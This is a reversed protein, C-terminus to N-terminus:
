RPKLLLITWPLPQRSDIVEFWPSVQQKLGRSSWHNIHGPTNGFDRLYKGRAMNLARWIPERPTSILVNQRAVRALETLAAAPDDLHELVEMMVLIDISKDPFGLNYASRAEIVIGPNRRQAKDVLSHTVDSGSFDIGLPIWDRMRETSYGAGCGVEHLTRAGDLRPMLLEKVSRYFGDVLSSGVRGTKEYKGTFQEDQDVIM